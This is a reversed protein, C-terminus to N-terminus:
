RHFGHRQQWATVESVTSGGQEDPDPWPGQQPRGASLIHAADSGGEEFGYYEGRGMEQWIMDAVQGPHENALATLDNQSMGSEAALRQAAAQVGHWDKADDPYQFRFERWLKDMAKGFRTAQKAARDIDRQTTREIQQRGMEYLARKEANSLGENEDLPEGYLEKFWRRQEPDDSYRWTSVDGDDVLRRGGSLGGAPVSNVLRDLERLQETRWTPDPRDDNYDQPAFPDGNLEYLEPGYRERLKKRNM